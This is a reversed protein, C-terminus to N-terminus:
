YYASYLKPHKTPLAKPSVLLKGKGTFTFEALPDRFFYAGDEVVLQGAITVKARRLIELAGGKKVVLRSNPGIYLATKSGTDSMVLANDASVIVTALDRTRAPRRGIELGGWALYYSNPVSFHLSGPARLVTTGPVNSSLIFDSRHPSTRQSGNRFANNGSFVAGLIKDYSGQPPKLYNLLFTCSRFHFLSATDTAAPISHILYGHTGVFRCNTFSMRTAHSDSHM